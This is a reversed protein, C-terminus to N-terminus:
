VRELSDLLSVFLDFSSCWNFIIDRILNSLIWVCWAFHFSFSWLRLARNAIYSWTRLQSSDQKSLFSQKVMSCDQKTLQDSALIKKWTTEWISFCVKSQVKSDLMGKAPFLSSRMIDFMQLLLISLFFAKRQLRGFWSTWKGLRLLPSLIHKLSEM